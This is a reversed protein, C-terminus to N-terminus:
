SNPIGKLTQKPLFAVAKVTTIKITSDQNKHFNEFDAAYQIEQILVELPFRLCASNIDDKYSYQLSAKRPTIFDTGLLGRDKDNTVQFFVEQFWFEEQDESTLKIPLKVEGKVDLPNGTHSILRVSPPKIKFRQGSHKEVQELINASLINFKSGSDLLFTHPKMHDHFQVLIHPRGQHLPTLFQITDPKQPEELLSVVFLEEENLEKSTGSLWVSASQSM